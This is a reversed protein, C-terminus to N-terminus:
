GAPRLTLERSSAEEVAERRFPWPFTEGEAWASFQDTYHVSGPHGSTGTLNVWTSADLDALDVVMRMSPAATVAFSDAAADWSTANIISSGGPVALPSPNVLERVPGPAAEGGLVPHEPAATHLRGWQWEDATKGLEVTLELRAETLARVLIEDRSEVVNVTRRDDWWASDPDDLLDEVVALWRSNGSPWQDEPLDDWFTLELLKAWVASFYAAAASDTGQVHDWDRLLDVGEETFADVELELLAPILSEAYPSWADNQLENTMEVDIRTGDAVLADLQDRIRQSRYGYDWDATLFPQTGSATVAQNAAVVYGVAPDLVAPMSSPEVWGQWDYRSDWGPRPWTGDSPVPGDLVRARVPIRGPAQYGIQGETTAFVINQSPVDFLAAAAAVDAADSATAFALVADATHGPELATWALAVETTRRSGEATPSAAVRGLDMVDSIIPGHVTTRVEIEESPGGAVEITETRTEFPVQEGDRLYTDGAPSTRQLFFDTVDAGLNTIGWALEANHGIIVGPFGSFGFGSVDYPCEPGVATCHLGVQSWIGPASISLHPDNALIPSGSVTHEGSVVWSNSGTGDGEGLLHPVAGLVEATADLARQLEAGLLTGDPDAGPHDPAGGVGAATPRVDGEAVIPANVDQPYRPFLDNVRGVDRVTAYILARSLEQDYNGKLDWAMAKLWALSDIPDWPDPDAVDIQLGLVAYEVGLSETPTADLYANVGEAYATLAERTEPALIEWEQEAVARWGFTRIVKDAALAEDNEGVLESLRGATVHRRYDMEFFRDQAHVYGQARFLDEATEAYIDAVGRQDRLVTVEAGLGALDATGGHDPLPRRVVTAAVAAVAVIALVLVAATGLLVLRLPRRRPM